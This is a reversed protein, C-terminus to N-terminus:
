WVFVIFYLRAEDKGTALAGAAAFAARGLPAEAVGVILTGELFLHM